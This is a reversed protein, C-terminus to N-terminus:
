RTIVHVMQPTLNLVGDIRAIVQGNLNIESFGDVVNAAVSVTANDFDQPDVEILIQDVEADFDQIIAANGGAVWDGLYIDDAGAGAYVYDGSGAYISDSGDGGNLFDVDDIDHGSAALVRGDIIDDGQGGMITDSGLGGVLTDYGYGGELSDDGDGGVLRDDGFGGNLNDSGQGGDLIDDGTHGFLQDEGSGGTLADAGYEGHLIDSGTGGFLSDDGSGGSIIDNGEGGSLFDNGGYGAIQDTGGGAFVEDDGDGGATIAGIAGQLANDLDTLDSAPAPDVAGVAASADIQATGLDIGIGEVQLNPIEVENTPDGATDDLLQALSLEPQFTEDGQPSAAGTEADLDNDGENESGSNSLMGPVDVVLGTMFLGLLGALALM